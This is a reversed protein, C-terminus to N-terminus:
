AWDATKELVLDTLASIFDPRTNLAPIYRLRTGGASLFAAANQEAIEELTELCDAAFGPCVADINKVGGGGLQRLTEMTYPQLWRGRGFRSQFTLLWEDPKLGLAEATLRATKHCFCYYPDGSDFCRQPIGHFSLLLKEPRGNSSWFERISAALAGIYGPRDHFQTVFRLEPVWRWGRLASAVADITSATTAASYQPYMPLVLLRTAGRARLAELASAISPTGYRMGLEVLPARNGLRQDLERELAEVQGRSYVLLPSGQDTWIKRYLRASYPARFPAVIGRLFPQWFWSPLDVVRRDSLFESLYRRLARPTPAEPTGLNTLLVGTRAEFEVGGASPQHHPAATATM